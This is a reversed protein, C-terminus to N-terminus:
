GDGHHRLPRPRRDIPGRRVAAVSEPGPEVEARCVEDAPFGGVGVRRPFERVGVRGRSPPPLDVQEDASSLPLHAAARLRRARDWGGAAAALDPALVPVAVSPGAATQPGASYRAPASSVEGFARIRRFLISGPPTAM